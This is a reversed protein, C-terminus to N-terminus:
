VDGTRLRHLASLPDNNTWDGSVARLREVVTQLPADDLLTFSTIMFSKMVWKGTDDRFWRGNGQVRMPEGFIHKALEKALARKARCVHVQDGEEIHIPVPDKEGGVLIVVGDLTGAQTLPGYELEEFERRGPFELVRAPTQEAEEPPPEEILAGFANDDALKRNIQDYARRADAPGEGRKVAHVRARVKPFAEHEVDEVVTASGGEVGVFYVANKEGMLNALDILYEGLRFAPLTDPSFSESIVFRYRRRRRAM